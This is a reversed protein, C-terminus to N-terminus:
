RLEGWPMETGNVLEYAIWQSALRMVNGISDYRATQYVEQGDKLIIAYWGEILYSADAYRYQVDYM